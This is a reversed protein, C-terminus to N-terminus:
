SNVFGVRGGQDFTSKPADLQECTWLLQDAYREAAERVWSPRIRLLWWALMFASCLSSLLAIHLTSVYGLAVAAVTAVIALLTLTIGAPKMAWLNRRFGYSVNEQFVLPFKSADRTLERLRAICIEITQDARTPDASEETGTLLPTEPALASVRARWRDRAVANVAVDRLRLRQTTPSGNWSAWLKREHRKGLDRSFEGFLVGLGFWSFLATAIPVLTLVPIWVAAAAVAPLTVLMAPLLRARRSYTDLLTFQAM